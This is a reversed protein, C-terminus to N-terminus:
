AACGATDPADPTLTEQGPATKGPQSFHARHIKRGSSSCHCMGNPPRGALHDIISASSTLVIIVQRRAACAHPYPHAAWPPTCRMRADSAARPSFARKRVRRRQGCIPGPTVAAFLSTVNATALRCEKQAASAITVEGRLLFEALEPADPQADTVLTWNRELPTWHQQSARDLKHSTVLVFVQAAQRIICEKLYAQEATAECLGRGAVVGDAGLFAKDVSLRSLTIQALPGLTSMSTPRLDGGILTVPVESSALISVALLNNTVVRVEHRGALLQAMAATTTGSDLFITDGDQVHSAAVQPPKLFRFIICTLIGSTTAAAQIQWGSPEPKTALRLRRHPQHAGLWSAFPVAIAGRRTAHRPSADGPRGARPLRHEVTRHCRHGSEIWQRPLAAARLQSGPDRRPSLLLGVPRACQTGRGQEARRSGPPATRNQLWDLIFLTREIRGLERLAVALGNQRPYSGLKRLMLSATVTGQRISTALRLVEDWNRWIHKENYTDGIMPTLAPYDKVSGPVYLKMDDLNRIRPAFQFGLLHM